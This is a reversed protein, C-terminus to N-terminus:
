LLKAVTGSATQARTVFNIADLPSCIRSCSGFVRSGVHMHINHWAGPLCDETTGVNDVWEEPLDSCESPVRACQTHGGLGKDM